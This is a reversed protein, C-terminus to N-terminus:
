SSSLLAHILNPSSHFHALSLFWNGGVAEVIAANNYPQFFNSLFM